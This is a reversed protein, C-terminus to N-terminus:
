ARKRRMVGALAALGFGILALSAPEPAVADTELTSADLRVNDFDGQNASSSLVISITKGVDAASSTYVATYNSWNGATPAVGSAVVVTNGIMLEVTGVPSSPLDRRLGVDVQLTYDTGGATVAGVNQSITGVGETFAVIDGDPVSNFYMTNSGPELQGTTADDTWGPIGGLSFGCGAGTCAYNLGSGPLTEFSPNNVIIPAASASAILILFLSAGSGLRGIKTAM